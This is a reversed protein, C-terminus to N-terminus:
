LPKFEAKLQPATDLLAVTRPLNFRTRGAYGPNLYLTGNLRECFPKHTHGFV